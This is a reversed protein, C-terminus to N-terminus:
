RRGAELEIARPFLVNNEEHVHRHTDVELTHLRDLMSRYSGCADDPIRYGRTLARLRALGAAVEDHENLMVGIPDEVSGFASDAVNGRELAICAPFLVQEEKPMHQELEDAVAAFTARVDALDPHTQGHVATVRDVLVRLAPLEDRLYGHHDNVIHACLESVPKSRWDIDDAQTPGPDDLAEAIADLSVGRGACAAALTQKGGCCYDIGFSEFVRSRSPRELVLDAVRADGSVAPM